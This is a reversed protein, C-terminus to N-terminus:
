PACSSRPSDQAVDVVGTALQTHVTAREGLHHFVSVAAIGVDIQVVLVSL